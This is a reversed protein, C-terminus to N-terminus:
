KLQDKKVEIENLYHRLPKPREEAHSRGDSTTRYEELSRIAVSTDPYAPFVVPSVDFLEGIEELTRTAVDKDIDEWSDRKVTFGFSQQTIDGRDISTALDRAVQTDPLDVEMFLGIKDEKLRLTGASQRGLVFNADHNFLARTDSIKLAESFAGPAIKEVFGGLNGSLSNFLAAYGSITRKGDDTKKVRLEQAIVRYEKKM